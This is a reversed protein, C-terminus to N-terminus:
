PVVPSRTRARLSRLSLRWRIRQRRTLGSAITAAIRDATAAADSALRQVDDRSPRGFTVSSSMAALRRSEHHISPALVAAQDAIRDDTWARAITVGADVFVDTTNAWAGRVRGAADAVTLRRRRRSWKIAVIAGIALVIPTLTLGGLVAGRVVWTGLTGWGDGDRDEDLVVEEDETEDEAPPAIPPQAAAPSQSEPQPEPETDDTAEREPVPDYAVWTGDALGIEPWVEAHDSRLTFRSAREEPPVDFGTAIRADVGLSRAMLVFAAVFQERTGRQTDTVFRELLAQQQGGGPAQPDLDWQERMTRAIRGLQEPPSGAGALLEARDTFTAARDDVPRAAIVMTDLAAITPAVESDVLVVDGVSPAPAVRVAVRAVDTEVDRDVAIPRGPFPVLDIDDSDFRIEYRISDPGPEVLALRGGIPRLELDPVWRQGDYSDFAATRWRGPMAPRSLLSRDDITLLSVPPDASRLAITAEIPDLLVASADAEATERPDARDAWALSGAVLASVAAVVVATTVVARDPGLRPVRGVEAATTPARPDVAALMMGLVAAAILVVTAPRVPAGLAAILVLAVLPPGLPALRWRPEAALLVSVVASVTLLLAVTSIMTAELPSPWETSLLRRPGSRVGPVVDTVGGGAVVVTAIVGVVGVLATAVIRWTRAVRLTAAVAAGVLVPGAVFEILFEDFVHGGVLAVVVSLATAMVVRTLAVTAM